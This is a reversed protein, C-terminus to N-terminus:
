ANKWEDYLQNLRSKLIRRGKHIYIKCKSMDLQYKAAIDAYSMKHIERDWIVGRYRDDLNRIERIISRVLNRLLENKIQKDMEPVDILNEIASSYINVRSDFIGEERRQNFSDSKSDDNKFDSSLSVEKLKKKNYLKILAENKAITYSWTSFKFYNNYSEINLFIKMLADSVCDEVDMPSLEKSANYYNNIFYELRPKLTNYLLIYHEESRTNFYQMGLEQLDRNSRKM